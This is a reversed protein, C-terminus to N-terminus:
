GANLAGSQLDKLAKKLNHAAAGMDFSADLRYTGPPCPEYQDAYDWSEMRGLGSGIDWPARTFTHFGYTRFVGAHCFVGALADIRLTEGADKVVIRSLHCNDGKGNIAVAVLRVSYGADELIDTLVLMAAGSWFLQEASQHCNGGWSCELNVIPTGSAWDRKAMRYATDWQGAMARDVDLDDGDDMWRPVRRRSKAAPIDVALESKLQALKAAGEKWGQAILDRAQGLTRIGGYWKAPWAGYSEPDGANAYSQNEASAPLSFVGSLEALSFESIFLKGKATKKLSDM